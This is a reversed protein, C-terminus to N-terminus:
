RKRGHRASSIRHTAAARQRLACDRARYIHILACGWLAVDPVRLIFNNRVSDVNGRIMALPVSVARKWAM